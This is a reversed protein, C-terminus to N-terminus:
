SILIETTKILLWRRLIKTMKQTHIHTPMYEKTNKTNKIKRKTFRLTMTKLATIKETIPKELINLLNDKQFVSWCKSPSWKASKLSGNHLRFLFVNANHLSHPIQDQHSLLSTLGSTPRQERYSKATSVTQDWTIRQTWTPSEQKIAFLFTCIHITGCLTM